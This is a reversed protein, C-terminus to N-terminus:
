FCQSDLLLFLSPFLQASSLISGAEQPILWNMQMLNAIIM